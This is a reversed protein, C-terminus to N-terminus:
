SLEIVEFRDVSMKDWNPHENCFVVVHCNHRLIKTKSDYKPSFVLRDKLQELITYQLFEMGGRPVNFLFIKKTEDIAHAIDDRKGVSLAQVNFPQETLLARTLHTKGQGGTPDVYFRITRDDPPSELVTLLEQQWPRYEVDLELIPHPHLYTCLQRLKREYRLWLMPFRRAIDREPPISPLAECWVLFEDFQTTGSEGRPLVGAEFFLGEKKCYDSAELPTKKKIEAHSRPSLTRTAGTRRKPKKFVVYGQLHPTGTTPCTEYGYVIYTVSPALAQIAADEEATWNHLTFCWHRSQAM